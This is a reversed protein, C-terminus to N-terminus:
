EQEFKILFRTEAEAVARQFVEPPTGAAGAGEPGADAGRLLQSELEAIREHLTENERCAPLYRFMYENSLVGCQTHPPTHPHVHVRVRVEQTYTFLYHTNHSLLICTIVVLMPTRPLDAM